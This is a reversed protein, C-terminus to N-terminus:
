GRSAFRITRASKTRTFTVSWGSVSLAPELERVNQSLGAQAPLWARGNPDFQDLEDYLQRATGSWGEAPLGNVWGLLLTRFSAHNKAAYRASTVAAM